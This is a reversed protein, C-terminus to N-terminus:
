SVPPAVIGILKWGDEKRTMCIKLMEGGSTVIVDVYGSPRVQPNQLSLDPWSALLEIRQKVDAGTPTVQWHHWRERTTQSELARFGKARYSHLIQNLAGKIEGRVQQDQVPRSVAVPESPVVTEPQSRSNNFLHAASATVALCCAPLLAIISPKHM